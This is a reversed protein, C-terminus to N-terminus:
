GILLFSRVFLWKVNQLIVFKYIREFNIGKLIEFSYPMMKPEEEKKTFSSRDFSLVLGAILIFTVCGYYYRSSLNNRNNSEEGNNQHKVIQLQQQQLKNPGSIRRAPLNVIRHGSSQSPQITLKNWPRNEYWSPLAWNTNQPQKM